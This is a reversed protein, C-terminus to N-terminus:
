FIFFYSLIFILDVLIILKKLWLSLRMMMIMKKWKQKHKQKQKQEFTAVAQPANVLHNVPEYSNYESPWGAWKVLYHIM